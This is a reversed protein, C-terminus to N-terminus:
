LRGLGTRSWLAEVPKEDGVPWVLTRLPLVSAPPPGRTVLLSFLAPVADSLAGRVAARYLSGPWLWPHATAELGEDGSPGVFIPRAKHTKLRSPEAQKTDALM